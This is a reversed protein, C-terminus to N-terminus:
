LYLPGTINDPPSLVSIVPIDLSSINKSLVTSLSPVALDSVTDAPVDCPPSITNKPATPPFLSNDPNVDSEFSKM